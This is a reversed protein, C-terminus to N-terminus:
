QPPIKAWEEKCRQKLGNLNTPIQKHVAKKPDRRLMENDRQLRFKSQAMSVGQNEEEEAM